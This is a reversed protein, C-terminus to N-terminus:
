NLQNNGAPIENMEKIFLRYLTENKQMDKGLGVIDMLTLFPKFAVEEDIM